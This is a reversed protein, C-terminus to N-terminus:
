SRPWRFDDARGARPPPAVGDRLAREVAQAADNAPRPRERALSGGPSIEARTLPVVPGAAPKAALSPLGLPEPLAPVAADILREIEAARDPAPASGSPVAAVAAVAPSPTRTELLRKLELDAFHAAKRSGAKTFHVGDSTRLRAVQGELDPGVPSYKNEDNVFGPWIDVYVGGGKRVSERYIDNLATADTSFKDSRMPPLGVWILPIKKEAFARVVADVRERYIERWRDSLPDHSVDGERISQRDNVGLMVIGYTIPQGGNLSEAIAKPWDYVDQRALGTDARVKRTVDVDAVEEFAEELGSGLYEALSDGFVVVHTSPEVEAVAAKEPASTPAARTPRPEVRRVERKPKPVPRRVERREYTYPRQYESPAASAPGARGDRAEPAYYSNPIRMGPYYPQAAPAPRARQPQPQPQPQPQYRPLNFFRLADDFQARAGPGSALVLLLTALFLRAGSRRDMM